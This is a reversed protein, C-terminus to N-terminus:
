IPERNKILLDWKDFARQWSQYITLPMKIKKLKKIFGFWTTEITLIFIVEESNLASYESEREYSLLRSIKLKM